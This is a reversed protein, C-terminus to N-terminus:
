VDHGGRDGRSCVMRKKKLVKCEKNLVKHCGKFSLHLDIVHGVLLELM